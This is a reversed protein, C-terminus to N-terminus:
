ATITFEQGLYQQAMQVHHVFTENAQEAYLHADEELIPTHKVIATETILFLQDKHGADEVIGLRKDGERTNVRLVNLHCAAPALGDHEDKFEHSGTFDFKQVFVSRNKEEIYVRMPTYERGDPNSKNHTHEDVQADIRKSDQHSRVFIYIYIGLRNNGGGVV